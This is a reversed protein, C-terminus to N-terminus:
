NPHALRRVVLFTIDDFQEAQGIFAKARAPTQRVFDPNITM